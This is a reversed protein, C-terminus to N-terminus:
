KEARVKEISLLAINSLKESTM